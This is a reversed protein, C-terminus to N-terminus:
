DMYAKIWDRVMRDRQQREKNDFGMLWAEGKFDLFGARRMYEAVFCHKDVVKWDLPLLDKIEQAVRGLEPLRSKGKGEWRETNGQSREWEEKAKNEYDIIAGLEADSFGDQQPKAGEPYPVIYARGTSGFGKSLIM